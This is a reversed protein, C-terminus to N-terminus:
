ATIQERFYSETQAFPENDYDVVKFVVISEMEYATEYEATNVHGVTFMMVSVQGYFDHTYETEYEIPGEYPMFLM